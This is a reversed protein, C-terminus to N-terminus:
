KSDPNFVPLRSTSFRKIEVLMSTEGFFVSSGTWSGVPFPELLFSTRAAVSVTAFECSMCTGLVFHPCPMNPWHQEGTLVSVLSMSGGVAEVAPFASLIVCTM